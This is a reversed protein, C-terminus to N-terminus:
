KNNVITKLVKKINESDELLKKSEEKIKKIENNIALYESKNVPIM